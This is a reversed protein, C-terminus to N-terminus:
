RSDFGSLAEVLQAVPVATLPLGTRICQVSRVTMSSHTGYSTIQTEFARITLTTSLLYWRNWLGELFQLKSALYIHMIYFALCTDNTHCSNDTIKVRLTQPATTLSTQLL